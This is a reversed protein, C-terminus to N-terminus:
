WVAVLCYLILYLRIIPRAQLLPRLYRVLREANEARQLKVAYRQAEPALDLDTCLRALLRLTDVHDPFRRHAAHYLQLAASYNGARRHCSAVLLHWRLQSPEILMGLQFFRLAQVDISRCEVLVSNPLCLKRTAAGLVHFMETRWGDASLLELRSEFSM